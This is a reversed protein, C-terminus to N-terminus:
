NGAASGDGTGAAAQAAAANAQVQAQQAAVAQQQAQVALQNAQEQAAAREEDSLSEDLAQAAAQTAAAQNATAAQNLSDAQQQYQAQLAAYDTASEGAAASVGTGDTATGAADTGAAAADSTGAAANQTDTTTTQPVNMAQEVEQTATQQQLSTSSSTTGSSTGSGTTGSTSSTVANAAETDQAAKAAQANQADEATVSEDSVYGSTRSTNTYDTAATGGEENVQEEAEEDTIGYLMEKLIKANANFDVAYMSRGDMGKMSGYTGDAPITIQQIEAGMFVPALTLLEAVETESLDTQVLPIVADLTSIMESASLKSLKEAAAMIVKRQRQVRHWDDDIYRTRAYVMATVGNLHNVGATLDFQEKDEMGIGKAYGETFTGEPNDLHNAEAETLDIDVGGIADILKVLTRINIRIYRNVDVLYNDRIEEVMMQAGGYRFTHTLWDWQGEYPGWLVPVGTGREFSALTVKGTNKNISLLICTDGRADTSFKETRDDTGILLINYVSSDQFIEGEAKVTDAEAVDALNKEMDEEASKAVSSNDEEAKLKAVYEDTYAASQDKQLRSYEYHFFGLGFLVICVLVTIAIRVGRKLHHWWSSVKKAAKPKKAAAATKDEEASKEDDKVEPFVWGKEEAEQKAKAEETDADTLEIGEPVPAKRRKKGSPAKKRGSAADRKKGTEEKSAPASAEATEGAKKEEAKPAKAAEDTPEAKEAAAKKESEPSSEAKEAKSTESANEEATAAKEPEKKEPEAAANEKVAEREGRRVRSTGKKAKDSDAWDVELGSAEEDTGAESASKKEEPEAATVYDVQLSESSLTSEEKESISEIQIGDAEGAPAAATSELAAETSATKKALDETGDTDVVAVGSVQQKAAPQNKPKPKQNRRRRSM